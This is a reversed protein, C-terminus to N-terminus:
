KKSTFRQINSIDDISIINKSKKNSLITDLVMEPVDVTVVTHKIMPSTKFDEQNNCENYVDNSVENRLENNVKNDLQNDLRNDLEIHHPRKIFRLDRYKMERSNHKFTCTDSVEKVSHNDVKLQIKSIFDEKSISKRIVDCSEDITQEEKKQLLHEM